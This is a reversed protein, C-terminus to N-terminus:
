PCWGNVAESGQCSLIWYLLALMFCENPRAPIYIIYAMIRGLVAPPMRAFREGESRRSLSFGMPSRPVFDCTQPSALYKQQLAANCVPIGDAHMVIRMERTSGHRSPWLCTADSMMTSVTAAVAINHEM